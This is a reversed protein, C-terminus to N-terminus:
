DCGQKTYAHDCVMGRANFDVVLAESCTVKGFGVARAYSYVWREVCKNPQGQLGTTTSSPEGFWARIRDKNQVGNQVDNIHTTDIKNGSSACASVTLVLLLTCLNKIM